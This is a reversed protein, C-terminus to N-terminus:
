FAERWVVAQAAGPARSFVGSLVFDDSRVIVPVYRLRAIDGYGVIGVRIPAIM